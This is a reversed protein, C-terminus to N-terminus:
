PVQSDYDIMTISAPDNLLQRSADDRLLGASQSRHQQYHAAPERWVFDLSVPM